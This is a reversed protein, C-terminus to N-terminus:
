IQTKMTIYANTYIKEVHTYTHIHSHLHTYTYSFIGLMIFFTIAFYSFHKVDFVSFTFRHLLLLQFPAMSKPLSSLHNNSELSFHKPELPSLQFLGVFRLLSDRPLFRLFSLIKKLPSIM